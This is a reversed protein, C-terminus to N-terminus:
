LPFPPSKYATVLAQIADPDDVVNGKIDIQLNPHRRILKYVAIAGEMGIQNNRLDLAELDALTMCGVGLAEAGQDGIMNNALRLRKVDPQYKAIAAIIGPIEDDEIQLTDLIIEHGSSNQITKERQDRM